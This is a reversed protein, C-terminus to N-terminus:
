VFITNKQSNQFIDLVRSNLHINCKPKNRSVFYCMAELSLLIGQTDKAIENVRITDPYFLEQNFPPHPGQRKKESVM